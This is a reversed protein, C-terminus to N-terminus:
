QRCIREFALRIAVFGFVDVLFLRDRQLLRLVEMIGEANFVGGISNAFMM